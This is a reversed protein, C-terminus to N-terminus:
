KCVTEETGGERAVYFINFVFTDILGFSFLTKKICEIIVVRVLKLAYMQFSVYVFYSFRSFVRQM